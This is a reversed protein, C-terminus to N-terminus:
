RNMRRKSQFWLAHVHAHTSKERLSSDLAAMKLSPQTAFVAEALAVAFDRVCTFRHAPDKALAGSIVDDIAPQFDPLRRYLSDPPQQTHQYSLAFPGSFPPEGCLWEYVMVGLAYQDSAPLSIGRFQKQAM